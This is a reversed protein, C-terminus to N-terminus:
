PYTTAERSNLDEMCAATFFFVRLRIAITINAKYGLIRIKDTRCALLTGLSRDTTIDIEWNTINEM